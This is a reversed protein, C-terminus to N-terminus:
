KDSAFKSDKLFRALEAEAQDKESDYFVGLNAGMWPTFWYRKYMIVWAAKGSLSYARSLKAKLAM